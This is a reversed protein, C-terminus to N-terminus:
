CIGKFHYTLIHVALADPRLFYLFTLGVSSLRRAACMGRTETHDQSRTGKSM